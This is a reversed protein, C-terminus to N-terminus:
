QLIIMQKDGFTQTLRDDLKKANWTVASKELDAVTNTNSDFLTATIHIFGKKDTDRIAVAVLNTNKKLSTIIEPQKFFKLIEDLGLIDVDKTSIIPKNKGKVLVFVVIVVIVGVIIGLIKM